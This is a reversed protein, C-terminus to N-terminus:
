KVVSVLTLLLMSRRAGKGGDCNFGLRRQSRSFVAHFAGYVPRVSISELAISRDTWRRRRPFWFQEILCGASNSCAVITVHGLLRINMPRFSKNEEVVLAMWLFHAFCFDTPKKGAKCSVGM